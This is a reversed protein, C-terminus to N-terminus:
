GLIAGEVPSTVQESLMLFVSSTLSKKEKCAHGYIGIEPPVEKWLFVALMVPFGPDATTELPTCLGGCFKLSQANLKTTMTAKQICKKRGEKVAEAGSALWRGM